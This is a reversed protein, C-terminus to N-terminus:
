KREAFYVRRGERASEYIACILEQTPMVAAASNEPMVGSAISQYFHAIEKMHGVGWYQKVNGFDFTETPNKDAIYERGDNLAVCAKEGLLKVTGKECYLELEVPADYAYYNVAFFCANVGNKYRIVGEACDEVKIIEHARNGMSAEVYEIEGNMYWNMLDLTHIAQDIVVGGGEMEWTGKWDSHSYYEDSRSWTVIARASLINGLEGEKLMRKILLSGPNFRNQFSVMLARGNDRAAQEMQKADSLKIAMPKETLVHLGHNLAYIAMEPHLFHPTCIHVSDLREKEMMEKYDTYWRCGYAEAAARAREEKCDCVAALEAQEQKSVSVAHMPFIKGCGIIGVRLKEMKM